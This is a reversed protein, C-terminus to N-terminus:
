IRKVIEPAKYFFCCTTLMTYLVLATVTNGANVTNSFSVVINNM